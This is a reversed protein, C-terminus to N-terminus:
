PIHSCDISIEGKEGVILEGEGLYLKRKEMLEKFFTARLVPAEMTGFYKKYAETEIRSREVSLRPVTTTSIRRLEQTRKTSGRM